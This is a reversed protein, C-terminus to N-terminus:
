SLLSFVDDYLLATYKPRFDVAGGEPTCKCIVNGMVDSFLLYGEPAYVPGETFEFGTATREIRANVPVIADFGPVAREVSGIAATSVRADSSHSGCSTLVFETALLLLTLLRM